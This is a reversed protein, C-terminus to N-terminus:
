KEYARIISEDPDEQKAEAAGINALAIGRQVLFEPHIKKDKEIAHLINNAETMWESLRLTYENSLVRYLFGEGDDYVLDSIEEKVKDILDSEPDIERWGAIGLGESFDVAPERGLLLGDISPRTNPDYDSWEVHRNFVM